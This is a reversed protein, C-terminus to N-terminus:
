CRPPARSVGDGAAEGLVSVFADPPALERKHFANVGAVVVLLLWSSVAFAATGLLDVVGHGASVRGRVLLPAVQVLPRM